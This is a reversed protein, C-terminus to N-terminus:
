QTDLVKEASWRTTEFTNRVVVSPAALIELDDKHIFDNLNQCALRSPWSGGTLSYHIRAQEPHILLMTKYGQM